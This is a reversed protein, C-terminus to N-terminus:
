VQTDGTITWGAGGSAVPTTLYTRAAIADSYPSGGYNVNHYTRGTATFSINYPGGNTTINNAWGILTRSYNETNVATSNLLASVSVGATRLNWNGLNQNFSTASQFASSLTTVKSVDWNSVPQNFASAQLFMSGMTIVSSTNWNNVPQNFNTAQRFMNAFTTVKSTDWTNVPQNFVTAGLFMENMATVKKTDWSSINRNFANTGAFTGSMNTVNATNWASVDINFGFAGRFTNGLNTVNSTEWTELPYRFFNPNYFGTGNFCDSLDTVTSPIYHPCSFFYQNGRFIGWISTLGVNGWRFVRNIKSAFGTSPSVTRWGLGSVKGKISINYTGGVAYSKDINTPVSSVVTQYTGDGWSIVCDVDGFFPLRITNPPTTSFLTTNTEFNIDSYAVGSQNQNQRNTVPM